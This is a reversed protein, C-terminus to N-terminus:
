DYGDEYECTYAKGFESLRASALSNVKKSGSLWTKNIDRHLLLATTEHGSLSVAHMIISQLLAM